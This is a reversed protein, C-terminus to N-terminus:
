HMEFSPGAHFVSGNKWGFLWAHNDARLPRDDTEILERHINYLGKWTRKWPNYLEGDKPNNPGGSWSGGIAFIRGDSLTTTSHYGRHLVMSEGRQWGTGDFISTKDSDAGGSVVIRGDFDMSIGPCFM